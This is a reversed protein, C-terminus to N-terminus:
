LKNFKWTKVESDTVMIFVYTGTLLGSIDIDLIRSNSSLTPIRLLEKGSLDHIKVSVWGDQSPIYNLHLMEAAPVPYIVANEIAEQVNEFTLVRSLYVYLDVQDQKLRYYLRSYFGSLTTDSFEYQTKGTLYPVVAINEWIIGNTSREVLFPKPTITDTAIWNLHINLGQQIGYFDLLPMVSQAKTCLCAMLLVSILTIRM